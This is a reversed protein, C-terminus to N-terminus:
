VRWTEKMIPMGTQNNILAVTATYNANFTDGITNKFTAVAGDLDNFYRVKFPFHDQYMMVKYISENSLLRDLYM